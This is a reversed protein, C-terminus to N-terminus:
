ILFNDADTDSWINIVKNGKENEQYEIEIEKWNQWNKLLDEKGSKVSESWCFYANKSDPNANDFIIYYDQGKIDTKQIVKFNTLLKKKFM